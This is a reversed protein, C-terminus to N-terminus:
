LEDASPQLLTLLRWVAATSTAMLSIQEGDPVVLWIGEAVSDLVEIQRADDEGWRATVRWHLLDDAALARLADAEPGSADAGVGRALFDELGQRTTRMGLASVQRPGLGLVSPLLGIVDQPYMGASVGDIEVVAGGRALWARLGPEGAPRLIEADLTVAPSARVDELAPDQLWPARVDEVIM